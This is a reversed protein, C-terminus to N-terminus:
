ARNGGEEASQQANPPVGRSEGSVARLRAALSPDTEYIADAMRLLAQRMREPGTEGWEMPRGHDAAFRAPDQERMLKQQIIRRHEPCAIHKDISLSSMALEDTMTAVVSVPQPIMFWHGPEGCFECALGRQRLWEPESM